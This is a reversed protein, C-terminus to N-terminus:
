IQRSIEADVDAVLLSFKARLPLRRRCLRHRWRFDDDLFFDEIRLNGMTKTSSGRSPHTYLDIQLGERSRRGSRM